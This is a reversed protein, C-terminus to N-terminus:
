QRWEPPKIDNLAPVVIERICVRAPSADGQQQADSL